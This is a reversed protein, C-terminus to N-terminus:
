ISVILVYQINIYDKRHQLLINRLQTITTFISRIQTFIERFANTRAVQESSKKTQSPQTVSSFRQDHRLLSLTQQFQETLDSM